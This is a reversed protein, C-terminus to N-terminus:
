ALSHGQGGRDNGHIKEVSSSLGGVHISGEGREPKSKDATYKSTRRASGPHEELHRCRAAHDGMQLTKMSIRLRGPPSAADPQVKAPSGESGKPRGSLVRDDDASENMSSYVNSRGAVDM